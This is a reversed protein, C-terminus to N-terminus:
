NPCFIGPRRNVQKSSFERFTGLKLRIMAGRKSRRCAYIAHKRRSAATNKEDSYKMSVISLFAFFRHITPRNKPALRRGKAYQRKSTPIAQHTQSRHSFQSSNLHYFISTLSAPLRHTFHPPVLCGRPTLKMKGNSTIFFCFESNALESGSNTM